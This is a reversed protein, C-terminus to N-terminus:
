REPASGPRKQQSSRPGSLVPPVPPVPPPPKPQPSVWCSRPEFVQLLAVRDAFPTQLAIAAAGDLAEGGFDARIDALRDIKLDGGIGGVVTDINVANAIVAPGARALDVRDLLRQCRRLDLRVRDDVHREAEDIAAVPRYRRAPLNGVIGDRADIEGLQHALIAGLICADDGEDHTVVGGGAIDDELCGIGGPLGIIGPAAGAEIIAFDRDIRGVHDAVQRRVAAAPQGRDATGRGDAVVARDDGIGARDAARMIEDETDLRRRDLPQLLVAVINGIDGADIRRAAAAQQQVMIGIERDTMVFVPRGLLAGIDLRGAIRTHVEGEPAAVLAVPLHAPFAADVAAALGIAGHDTVLLGPARARIRASGAGAGPAIRAIGIRSLLRLIRQGARHELHVAVTGIRDGDGVVIRVQAEPAVGIDGLKLLALGIIQHLVQETVLPIGVDLVAEPRIAEDVQREGRDRDAGIQAVVARRDAIRHRGVAEGHVPGFAARSTKPAPM